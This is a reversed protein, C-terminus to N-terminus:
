DGPRDGADASVRSPVPWAFTIQWPVLTGRSV